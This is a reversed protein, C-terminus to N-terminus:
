HHGGSHSHNVGAHGDGSSVVSFMGDDGFVLSGAHRGRKRPIDPQGAIALAVGAGLVPILWILACQMYKQRAEYLDSMLVRVTAIVNLIVVASLLALLLQSTEM